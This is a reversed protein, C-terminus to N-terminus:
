HNNLMAPLFIRVPPASETAEDVGMDVVATGDGDADIIRAPVLRDVLRHSILWVSHEHPSRLAQFGNQEMRHPFWAM